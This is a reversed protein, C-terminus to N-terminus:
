DPWVYRAIHDDDGCLPETHHPTTHGEGDSVKAVAAGFIMHLAAAGNGDGRMMISFTASGNPPGCLHCSCSSRRTTASGGSGFFAMVGDSNEDVVYSGLLVTLVLLVALCRRCGTTLNAM